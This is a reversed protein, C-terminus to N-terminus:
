FLHQRGLDRLLLLLHKLRQLEHLLGAHDAFVFEYTLRVSVRLIGLGLGDAVVGLQYSLGQFRLVLEGHSIYLLCQPYNSLSQPPVFMGARVGGDFLLLGILTFLLGERTDRFSVVGPVPDLWQKRRGLLSHRVVILGDRARHLLLVRLWQGDLTLLHVLEPTPLALCLGKDLLHSLLAKGPFEFLLLQLLSLLLLKFLCLLM